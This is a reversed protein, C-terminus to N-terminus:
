AMYSRDRGLPHRYNHDLGLYPSPGSVRFAAECARTRRLGSQKNSRGRARDAEELVNWIDLPVDDLQLFYLKCVVGKESLHELLRGRNDFQVECALCKGGKGLKRRLTMLPNTCSTFRSAQRVSRKQHSTSKEWVGCM